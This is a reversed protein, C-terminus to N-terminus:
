KRVIKLNPQSEHSTEVVWHLIIGDFKCSHPEGQRKPLIEQSGLGNKISKVSLLIMQMCIEKLIIVM